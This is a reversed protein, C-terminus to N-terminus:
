LQFSPTVAMVLLDSWALPLINCPQSILRQSCFHQGKAAFIECGNQVTGRHEGSAERSVNQSKKKLYKINLDGFEGQLEGIM